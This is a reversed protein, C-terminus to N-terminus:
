KIVAEIKSKTIQVTEWSFGGAGLDGAIKTEVELVSEAEVLFEAKNVIPKGTKSVDGTDFVVKAVYYAM